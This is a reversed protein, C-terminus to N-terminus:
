ATGATKTITNNGTGQMSIGTTPNNTLSTLTGGGNIRQMSTRDLNSVVTKKLVLKKKNRIKM